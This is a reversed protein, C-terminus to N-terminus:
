KYLMNGYELDKRNRQFYEAPKLGVRVKITNLPLNDMSPRRHAQIKNKTLVAVLVDAAESSRDEQPRAGVNTEVTIGDFFMTADLFRKMGPLVNWKAKDLIYAIQGASRWPESEALSEIIVNIGQLHELEKAAQRQEIVRPALETELHLRELRESEAKENAIAIGEKAKEADAKLLEAQTKLSAIEIDSEQKDKESQKKILEIQLDKGKLDRTLQEDKARILEGSKRSSLVSFVGILLAIIGALVLLGLTVGNLLNYTREVDPINTSM